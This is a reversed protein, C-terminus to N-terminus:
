ADDDSTIYEGDESSAEEDESDSVEATKKRTPQPSEASKELTGAAAKRTVRRTAPPPLPALKLQKKRGPRLPSTAEEAAKRKMTTAAAPKSPPRQPKLGLASFGGTSQLIHSCYLFKITKFWSNTVFIVYESRLNEISASVKTANSALDDTATMCGGTGHTSASQLPFVFHKGM